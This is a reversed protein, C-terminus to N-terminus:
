LPSVKFADSNMNTFIHVLVQNAKYTPINFLLVPINGYIDSLLNLLNTAQVLRSLINLDYLHLLGYKLM